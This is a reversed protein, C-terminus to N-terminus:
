YKELPPKSAAHKMICDWSCFHGVYYAQSPYVGDFITYFGSDAIMDTKVWTNCEPGDCHIGQSM